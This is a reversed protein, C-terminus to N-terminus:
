RRNSVTWPRQGRTDEVSLVKMEDLWIAHAGNRWLDFFGIVIGAQCDRIQIPDSAIVIDARACDERHSHPKYSFAILKNDKKYLCGAEDCSIDDLYQWKRPKDLGQGSMQMWAEGVFREYMRSSLYLQGDHDRIAALKGSSAVLIDPQKVTMILLSGILLPLVSIVRLRGKLLCLLLFGLTMWIISSAPWAAPTWLAGKYSAVHHAIEIIQQVGWGSISWIFQDLGLPMLAVALVACPMVIFGMLPMALVNSFLSLISLQQFHYLVYPATALSAIITTLSVGLVYLALRKTFTAKSHLAPFKYRFWEYFAVLGTVAAFSLQFSAGMVSEPAYLMIAFAAIAVMRLSIAVRDIMVASLVFGTMILARVTPVPAGVLCTYLFITLLSIAAAYKKIPHYLVFRPFLAMLFRAVFFILGGVLGVHLGSIALLHALGAQRLAEKDEERISVREGTILASLVAAQQEPVHKRIKASIYQRLAEFGLWGLLGKREAKGLVLPDRYSFGFAGIQKFYAYRQFDFAGPAVPASPANLGALTEIRLGAEVPAQKRFTIRVKKPTEAPRLDEIEVDELVARYGKGGELVDIDIVTGRVLATKIERELLPAKMYDTRWKAAAMGGMFIFGCLLAIYVARLLPSKERMPMLLYLVLGWLLVPVYLAIGAPEFSLSFYTIIGCGCIVPLWLFLGDRQEAMLHQWKHAILQTFNWM